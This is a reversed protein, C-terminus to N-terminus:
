GCPVIRMSSNDVRCGDCRVVLFPKVPIETEKTQSVYNNHNHVFGVSLYNSKAEARHTTASPTDCNSHTNKHTQTNFATRPIQLCKNFSVVIRKSLASAKM